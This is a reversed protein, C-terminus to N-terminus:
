VPLELELSLNSKGSIEHVCDRDGDYQPPDDQDRQQDQWL